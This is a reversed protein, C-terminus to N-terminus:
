ETMTSTLQHVIDDIAFRALVRSKIVPNADDDLDVYATPPLVYLNEVGQFRFEPTVAQGVRFAGYTHHNTLLPRFAFTPQKLGVAAAVQRMVEVIEGHLSADRASMVPPIGEVNLLDVAPFRDHMASIAQIQIWISAGDFDGRLNDGSPMYGRAWLGSPAVKIELHYPIRHELSHCQM